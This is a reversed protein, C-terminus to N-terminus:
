WVCTGEIDVGAVALDCRLRMIACNHLLVYSPYPLLLIYGYAQM